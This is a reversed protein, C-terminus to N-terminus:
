SFAWKMDDDFFFVFFFFIRHFWFNMKKATPGRDISRPDHGNSRNSISDRRIRIAKISVTSSREVTAFFMLSLWMRTLCYCRCCCLLSTSFGMWKSHCEEFHKRSPPWWLFPPQEIVIQGQGSKLVCINMCNTSHSQLARRAARAVLEM